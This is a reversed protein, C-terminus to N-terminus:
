PDRLPQRGSLGDRQHDGRQAAASLLPCNRRSAARVGRASSECPCPFGQGLPNPSPRRFSANGVRGWDSLTARAEETLTMVLQSLRALMMRMFHRLEASRYTGHVERMPKDFHYAWEPLDASLADRVKGAWSKAARELLSDEEIDELPPIANLIDCGEHLRQRLRAALEDDSTRDGAAISPLPAAPRRPEIPVRHRRRLRRRLWRTWGYVKELFAVIVLVSGFISVLIAHGATFDISLIM